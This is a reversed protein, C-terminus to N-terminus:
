GGKRSTKPDLEYEPCATIRYSKLYHPKNEQQAYVQTETATWGEVPEFNASWSCFGTAKACTWCLQERKGRFGNTAKEEQKADDQDCHELAAELYEKPVGYIRELETIEKM